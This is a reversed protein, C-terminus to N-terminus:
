RAARITPEAAAVQFVEDDELRVATLSRGWACGTDVCLWSAGLSLGLAAWHGFVVRHDSCPRGPALYWPLCGEPAESPEGSFDHCLSGDSRCTRIRTLVAAASWTPDVPPPTPAVSPQGPTARYWRHMRQRWDPARLEAEVLRAAKLATAATWHPHVGAHVLLHPRGGVAGVHVLPRGRLWDLLELRDPAVLLEDLTDGPRPPRVGAACALLHLDHNGLVAVLSADSGLAWRLVELSRPGRNVLDGALWLRDRGPSFALKDLLRCLSDYCGQLDGIVYTAM